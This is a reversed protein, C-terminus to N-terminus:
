LASVAAAAAATHGPFQHCIAAYGAPITRLSYPTVRRLSNKSLRDTPRHQLFTGGPVQSGVSRHARGALPHLRGSDNYSVNDFVWRRADIRDQVTM